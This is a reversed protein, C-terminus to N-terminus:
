RDNRLGYDMDPRSDYKYIWDCLGGADFHKGGPNHRERAEQLANVLTLRDIAEDIIQGALAMAAHLAGLSDQGYLPFIRSDLDLGKISLPCRFHKGAVLGESKNKVVPKGIQVLVQRGVGTKEYLTFCREAVVEGLLNEQTIADEM